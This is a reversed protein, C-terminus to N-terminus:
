EPSSTNECCPKSPAVVFITARLVDPDIFGQDAAIKPTFRAKEVRDDQLRCTVDVGFCGYM